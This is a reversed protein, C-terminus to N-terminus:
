RRTRNALDALTRSAVQDVGALLQVAERTARLAAFGRDSQILSALSEIADALREPDTPVILVTDSIRSFESAADTHEGAVVAVGAVVAEAVVMGWGDHQSPHLLVDSEALIAQVRDPAVHGVLRVPLDAVSDALEDELPGAGCFTATFRVEREHLVRLAAAAALPNKGRDLRGIVTIVVGKLGEVNRNPTRSLSRIEPSTQPEPLPYPALTSVHAGLRAYARRGRDSMAWVADTRSIAWGIWTDRIRRKLALTRQDPREALMVTPPRRSQPTSLVAIGSRTAYGGVVVADVSQLQRRLQARTITDRATTTQPGKLVQITLGLSRYFDAEGFRGIPRDVVALVGHGMEHWKLFLPFLHRSPENVAVLIRM